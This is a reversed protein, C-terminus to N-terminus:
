YEVGVVLCIPFERDEQLVGLYLVHDEKEWIASSFSCPVYFQESDEQEIDEENEGEMMFQSAGFKKELEVALDKLIKTFELVVSDILEDDHQDEETELVHLKIVEFGEEGSSILDEAFKVIDKPTEVKEM